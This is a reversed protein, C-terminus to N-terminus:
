RIRRGWWCARPKRSRAAIARRRAVRAVPPISLAARNPIANEQLEGDVTLMVPGYPPTMAIKYARIASESFPQLSGPQDDWKLFDRVIVGPDVASHAHEFGFLRKTTDVLNGAIMYVPAQDCYANYLAMSAHQLGVTSQVMVALPKNEIKAYGHAMAVAIEEHVCSLLEPAKNGGYNIIAEHLGRFTSAPTQTCYDFGITKLVDVMFDGGSSTQQQGDPAPPLTERALNPPQAASAPAPTQAKAPGAVSAGLAAGTAGAGKLFGRRGIAAEGKPKKSEESM